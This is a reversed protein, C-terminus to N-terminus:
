RHELCGSVENIMTPLRRDRGRRLRGDATHFTANTKGSVIDNEENVIDICRMLRLVQLTLISDRNIESTCVDNILDVNVEAEFHFSDDPDILSGTAATARNQQLRFEAAREPYDPYVIIRTKVELEKSARLVCNLYRHGTEPGSFSRSADKITNYMDEANHMQQSDVDMEGEEMEGEEVGNQMEEKIEPLGHQEVDNRLSQGSNYVNDAHWASIKCKPKYSNSRSPGFKSEIYAVLADNSGAALMKIQHRNSPCELCYSVHTLIKHILM